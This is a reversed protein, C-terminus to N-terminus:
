RVQNARASGQGLGLQVDTPFVPTLVQNWLKRWDHDVRAAGGLVTSVVEM